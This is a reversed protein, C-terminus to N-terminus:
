FKQLTSKDRRTKGKCVGAPFQSLAKNAIKQAARGMAKSEKTSKFFGLRM